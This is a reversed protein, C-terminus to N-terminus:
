VSGIQLVTPIARARPFLVRMADSVFIPKSFGKLSFGSEVLVGVVTQFLSISVPCDNKARYTDISSKIKKFGLEGTRDTREAFKALGLISDCFLPM